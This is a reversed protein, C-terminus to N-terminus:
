LKVAAIPSVPTNRLYDTTGRTVLKPLFCIKLGENMACQNQLIATLVAMAREGIEHYPQQVTTLPPNTNKSFETDEYGVISIDDPASLGAERLAKLVGIAINDNAAFVATFDPCGKECYRKINGLTILREDSPKNRARAWGRKMLPVLIYRMVQNIGIQM